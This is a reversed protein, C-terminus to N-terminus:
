TKQLILSANCGGFGSATKLCTDLISSKNEPLINVPVSVGINSFGKSGIYLNNIMSYYTAITEVIGAAGLTHGWYGKFSNILCKEIGALEFAKAEMEDNYVTATGHASIFAIDDKAIKAIKISKEISLSLGDGTRSPGSIHNADNSTSGGAIVINDSVRKNSSIIITAAAEGLNIGDREEDFPRCPFSSIAKFSQFGSLVFESILDGGIVIINKYSDTALLRQATLIALSGSVCANSIIIPKNPNKFFSNVVNAMEWLFLRNKGFNNNKGLLEINGKTTSFIFITKENSPDVETKSLADKCSIILAKEIMTFQETKAIAEFQNVIKAKNICSSYFSTPSYAQNDVLDIGSINNKLNQFNEESTFGLSSIINSSLIYAKQKM